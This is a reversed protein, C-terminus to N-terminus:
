KKKELGACILFTIGLVFFLYIFPEHIESNIICWVDSFDLPSESLLRLNLCRNNLSDIGIFLIMLIWSTISLVNWQKRNM